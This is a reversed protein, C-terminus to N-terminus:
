YGADCRGGGKAPRPVPRLPSSLHRRRGHIAIGRAPGWRGSSGAGATANSGVGRAATRDTDCIVTQLNAAADPPFGPPIATNPVERGVSVREPALHRFRVHTM